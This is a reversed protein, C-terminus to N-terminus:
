SERLLGDVAACAAAFRESWSGRIVVHRRDRAALEGLYLNRLRERDGPSDRQPDAVWPVDVDLVLHLDYRRSAAAAVVWDPTTGYFLRHFILTTLADTDCFLVRNAQRALADEAAHQGAVFRPFDDPEFRSGKHDLYARAYESVWVTGYHRALDRALTTKGTSEPGFVVVRKAFYPRVAPPLYAWHALPRERLRTGSIPVLERARDVVVHRAGLRCALEDGYAESTFVVDPGEPVRRRITDIWIRWFDPHEHPEQPNEDTVHLVRARPCMEEVWGARLTGPIPERALSGVLVTLSEVYAAAFDLLYQHGLHPPLFKGLILGTAARGGPVNV